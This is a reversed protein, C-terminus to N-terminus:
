GELGRKTRQDRKKSWEDDGKRLEVSQLLSMWGKPDPPTRFTYTASFLCWDLLDVAQM